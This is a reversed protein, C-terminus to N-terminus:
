LSAGTPWLSSGTCSGSGGFDGHSNQNFFVAPPMALLLPAQWPASAIKESRSSLMLGRVSERAEEWEEQRHSSTPEPYVKFTLSGKPNGSGSSTPTLSLSPYLAVGPRSPHHRDLLPLLLIRPAGQQARSQETQPTGLLRWSLLPVWPARASTYLIWRSHLAQWQLNSGQTLSIRQLLAHCGVGSSKGPSDWPCLFRTPYPGYPWLSDSVGSTVYRM